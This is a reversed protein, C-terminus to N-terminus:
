LNGFNKLSEREAEQLKLNLQQMETESKASILIVTEANLELIKVEEILRSISAVATSM